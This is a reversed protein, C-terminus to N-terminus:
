KTKSANKILWILPFKVSIKFCACLVLKRLCRGRTFQHMLFTLIVSKRFKLKSIVPFMLLCSRFVNGM